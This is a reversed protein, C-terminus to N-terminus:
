AARRLEAMPWPQFATRPAPSLFSSYDNPRSLVEKYLLVRYLYYRTERPLTMRYYDRHADRRLQNKLYSPGANYAAAVLSWSGLQDYLKRLYRCAAETAKHVNFREDIRSTVKLGLERATGPMLQWYGAAGARSVAKPRLGSEALPVYRFDDPIDYKELIPDIVPFFEEARQRLNGLDSAHPRFLTFVHKWRDVVDSQDLPMCEGCFDVDLLPLEAATNSSIPTLVSTGDTRTRTADSHAVTSIKSPSIPIIPSATFKAAVAIAPRIVAM